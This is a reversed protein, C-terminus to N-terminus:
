PRAGTRASPADAPTDLSSSSPVSPAGLLENGSVVNLELLSEREAFLVRYYALRVDALTRSADIVQLLTAAGERYAALAIGRAQEARAIASGALRGRQEALLRVAEYSGAVQSAVQRERWALEQEAAFREASARQVEGRNQDFFPLPVSLGVIMTSAGGISKTGFTAGLQRVALTRQYGTEARAAAARARAALLDPRAERARDVYYALPALAGNRAADGSALPSTSAFPAARTTSTDLAVHLSALEGRSAADPGLYPSLAGRARALEVRELALGAEARDLEVQVRILDGESTAGEKVRPETYAALEELRARVDAAGETAAQALAVRYFAQAANLVVTRRALDLEAEAARVDEDSRRVRPWRQFFAELPFTAFTSVERDVGLPAARGPFAANEVQYTLIPNGFTRATLRAGRAGAVRARAAEVLPHQAVARQLVMSLTLPTQDSSAEPGGTQALIPRTAGFLVTILLLCAPLNSRKVLM